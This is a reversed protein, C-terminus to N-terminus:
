REWADYDRLLVSDLDCGVPQALVLDDPGEDGGEVRGVLEGFFRCELQCGEACADLVHHPDPRRGGVDLGIAGCVVRARM